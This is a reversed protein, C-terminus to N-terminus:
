STSLCCGKWGKVTRSASPRANGDLAALEDGGRRDTSGRDNKLGVPLHVNDVQQQHGSHLEVNGGLPFLSRAPLWNPALFGERQKRNARAPEMM